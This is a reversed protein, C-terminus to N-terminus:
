VLACTARPLNWREHAICSAGEGSVRTNPRGESVWGYDRGLRALEAAVHIVFPCHNCIFMVLLPKGAFDATKCTKGDTDKLTFTPAATNLALMKSPTQAM